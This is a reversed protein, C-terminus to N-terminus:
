DVPLRHAAVHDQLYNRDWVMRWDIANAVKCQPPLEVRLLHWSPLYRTLGFTALAAYKVREIFFALPDPKDWIRDIYVYRLVDGPERASRSVLDQEFANDLLTILVPRSCEPSGFVLARVDTDGMNTNQHFVLGHSRAVGIVAPELSSRESIVDGALDRAGLSGVLIIAFVVHLTWPRM